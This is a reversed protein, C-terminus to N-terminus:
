RASSSSEDSVLTNDMFETVYDKVESWDKKAPVLVYAGGYGEPPPVIIMGPKTSPDIVTTRVNNFDVQSLLKYVQPYLKFDFDTQITEGFNSALSVIKLPDSLTQWTLAKNRIAVLVRQQRRARAFDSGEGNTGMRSRVYKLSNNGDMYQLGKEFKIHEYRCYYNGSDGCPDNEKGEIPYNWDEFSNEINVMVGGLTDVIKKFGEFDITIAYHLPLGLHDEVVRKALANGGGPYDYTNGLSYAANVKAYQEGVTESKPIKVWLDRPLSIMVTDKTALDISIVVMTDSRFGNRHVNGSNDKYTIPENKRRDIGLLLVNTRGKTSQLSTGEGRFFSLASKPAEFIQKVVSSTPWFALYVVYGLFFIALVALSFKLIRSKATRTTKRYNSNVEVYRM